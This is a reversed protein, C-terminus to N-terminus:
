NRIVNLFNELSGCEALLASHRPSDAPHTLLEGKIRVLDSEADPAKERDYLVDACPKGGDGGACRAISEVGGYPCPGNLTCAGLRIVRFSTKGRMAAAALSRFDKDGVLNVIIAQKRENGHPSVFRDGMAALLNLAITEYMAKIVVGGADESLRLRTHGRGYYLPMLRSAHKLLFQISSDSLLGSAFMNVAGTRRLQHWALPWVKGIEFGNAASLSPTVMRAFKLDDATIRLQEPDLLKPFLKAVLSYSPGYRGISYPTVEGPGSAWPEFSRSFLRPNAQDAETPRIEPHAAACSMRLRAVAEAADVALKVSPSTPWRADSDPDTKTTEGCIMPVRGLKPDDEWILCDARLSAAEEIRQFTYNVIYALAASQVCTLYRSFQRIDFSQRHRLVWREILEFIGFREATMAFPGHYVCGTRAGANPKRGLAFPLRHSQDGSPRTMASHLSGFNRAYADLCFNFCEEISQRHANFDDLCVRLQQLQYTWIRPPIYATQKIDHDPCAAVLRKIGEANVFEFGIQERADWIRHLEVIVTTYESSGIVSPVLELVKPYRKLETALIGNVSCLAVIRRLPLYKTRLTGVTAIARPGWMRWTTLLRLVDANAPDIASSRNSPPGDGFELSMPKGALPSLDWSPDGWRSLVKGDRDESVVWDRPPPWSPPRFFTHSPTVWDSCLGLGFEEMAPSM